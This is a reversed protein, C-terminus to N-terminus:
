RLNRNGLKSIEPTAGVGKDMFMLCSRTRPECGEGTGTNLKRPKGTMTLITGLATILRPDPYVQPTVRCQNGLM